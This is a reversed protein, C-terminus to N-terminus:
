LHKWNRRTVVASITSRAVGFEEALEAKIGYPGAAARARIDRVDNATLVAHGNREGRPMPGHSRMDRQNEAHTKYSLNSLNNNAPDGDEHAVEKGLPCPGVFAAMVLRHVRRTKETGARYLGVKKHGAHYESQRLIRGIFRRDDRTGNAKAKGCRVVRDVSRVRGMSSVEYFGKFGVVPKWLEKM